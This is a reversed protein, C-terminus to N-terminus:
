AEGTVVSEDGERGNVVGKDAERGKGMSEAM